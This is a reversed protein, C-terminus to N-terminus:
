MPSLPPGVSVTGMVNTDGTTLSGGTVMVVCVYVCESVCVGVSVFVSVCVWVLICMSVCLCVM